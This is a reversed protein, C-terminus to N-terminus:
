VKKNIKLIKLVQTMLLTQIDSKSFCLVEFTDFFSRPNQEYQAIEFFFPWM